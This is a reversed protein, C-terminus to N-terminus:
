EGSESDRDSDRRSDDDAVCWQVEDADRVASVRSGLSVAARAQSDNAGKRIILRRCSLVTQPIVLKSRAQM